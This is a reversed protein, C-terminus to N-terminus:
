VEVFTDRAENLIYLKGTDLCLISSGTPYDFYDSGEGPLNASDDLVWDTLYLKIGDGDITYFNYDRYVATM